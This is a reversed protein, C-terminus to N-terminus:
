FIKLVEIKETAQNGAKDYSNIEIPYKGFVIQNWTVIYPEETLTFMTANPYEGITVNIYDIGSNIDDAEITINIPGFIIISNGLDLVKKGGIYLGNEPNKISIEPSVEDIPFIKMLNIQSYNYPWYGTLIYGEDKTQQYETSFLYPEHYTKNLLSINWEENFEDDTKLLNYYEFDYSHSAVIFGEDVTEKPPYYGQNTKKWQITGSKNTKIILHEPAEEYPYRWPTIKVHIIYGHDQTEQVYKGGSAYWSENELVYTQQWVTNGNEDLHTLITDGSESLDSTGTLIFGGDSTQKGYFVTSPSPLSKMWEVSGNEYLKVAHLSRGFDGAFFYGGDITQQIHGNIWFTGDTPKRIFTKNWKITGKEDTKLIIANLENDIGGIIYGGDLTQQVSFSTGNYTRNWEQNGQADTKLLFMLDGYNLDFGTIIYGEDTTQDISLPIPRSVPHIRFTKMWEIGPPYILSSHNSDDDRVSVTNISSLFLIIFICSIVTANKRM